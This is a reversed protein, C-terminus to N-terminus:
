EQIGFKVDNIDTINVLRNLKKKQIAQLYILSDHARGRM